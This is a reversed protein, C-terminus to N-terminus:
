PVSSGQGIQLERAFDSGPLSPIVGLRGCAYAGAACGFRAAETATAGSAIGVAFAANFADGAGTSDVVEDLHLAPLAVTPKGPESVLAGAAGLMMVVTGDFRTRLSELIREPERAASEGVLASAEIRNPTLYNILPWADEPLRQAPAPNLLSPTGRERAVRLASVATDLPIELGVLCLDAREIEAAFAEVHERSLEDLAGTAVTIRNEGNPEVLIFGIMTPRTGVVVQACGVGEATWLKRAAIGFEDPGVATLLEVSAGLRSAGIAQNSGKGGPGIDFNTALLTEGPEPMRPVRMTMGVGYSGVVAIAPM